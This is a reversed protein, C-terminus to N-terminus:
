NKEKIGTVHLVAIIKRFLAIQFTKLINRNMDEM